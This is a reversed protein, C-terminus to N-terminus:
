RRGGVRTPVKAGCLEVPCPDCICQVVDFEHRVQCLSCGCICVGMFWHEVAHQGREAPATLQHKSPEVPVPPQPKPRSTWSM